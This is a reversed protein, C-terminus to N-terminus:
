EGMLSGVNIFGEIEEGCNSCVSTVKLNVGINLEDLTKEILDRDRKTMNKFTDLNLFPIEGISKTILQYTMTSASAVNQALIPSITEQVRGTPLTITITKYVKDEYKVGDKLEFTIDRKYPDKIPNCELEPLMVKLTNMGGCHRCKVDFDLPEDLKDFSVIANAVIIFDRDISTLDRVVEKTIRPLTGLSEIVGFILETMIKGGNNKIKPDSMREEVLGTMPKLVVKDHLNGESDIYGVPLKFTNEDIIFDRIKKM